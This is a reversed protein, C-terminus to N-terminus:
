LYVAFWRLESETIQFEPASFFVTDVPQAGDASCLSAMVFGLAGLGLSFGVRRMSVEISIDM